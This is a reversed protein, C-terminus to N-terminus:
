MADMLMSKYPNSNHLRRAWGATYQGSQTKGGERNQKQHHSGMESGSV